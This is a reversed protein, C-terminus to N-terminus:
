IDIFYHIYLTPFLSSLLLSILGHSGLMLDLACGPSRSVRKNMSQNRQLRATKEVKPKTLNKELLKGRRWGM